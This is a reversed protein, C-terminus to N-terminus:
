IKIKQITLRALCIGDAPGGSCYAVLMCGDNTFFIAPYCYGHEEDGEIISYDSWTM